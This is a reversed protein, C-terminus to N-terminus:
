INLSGTIPLFETPTKLTDGNLRKFDHNLVKIQSLIQDESINTGVGVAEGNHIVHVVVPIRLLPSATSVRSNADEMKGNLWQEFKRADERVLNKDRLTNSYVVTGCRDQAFCTVSCIFILLCGSVCRGLSIALFFKSFKIKMFMM